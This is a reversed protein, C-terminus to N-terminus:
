AVGTLSTSSLYLVILFSGTIFNGVRQPKAAQHASPRHGETLRSDILPGPGLGDPGPGKIIFKAPPLDSVQRVDPPMAAALNVALSERHMTKRTMHKM